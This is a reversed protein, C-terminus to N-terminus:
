MFVTNVEGPSNNPQSARVPTYQSYLRHISRQVERRPVKMISVRRKRAVENLILRCENFVRRSSPAFFM